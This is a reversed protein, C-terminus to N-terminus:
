AHESIPLTQKLEVVLAEFNHPGCNTFALPEAEGQSEEIDLDWEEKISTGYKKHTVGTIPLSVMLLIHPWQHTHFNSKEGVNLTAWLICFYQNEIM